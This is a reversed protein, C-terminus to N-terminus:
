FFTILHLCIECPHTLGGAVRGRGTWALSGCADARAPHPRQGSGRGHRAWPRTAAVETGIFGAGVVAEVVGAAPLPLDAEAGLVTLTGDFGARRLSEATRWGAVGAGVVAISKLPM